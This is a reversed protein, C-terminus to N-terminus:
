QGTTLVLSKRSPRVRGFIDSLRGVWLFGVTFGAQWAVALWIVNPSPGLAVNILSLTNAPLVWGLYGSVQALCTAVLTGIFAPSRYYNKPLESELGGLAEPAVKDHHLAVNTPTTHAHEQHTIELSRKETDGTAM